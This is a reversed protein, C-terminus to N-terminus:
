IANSFNMGGWVEPTRGRAVIRGLPKIENSAAVTSVKPRSVADYATKYKSLVRFITPTCIVLFSPSSPANFNDRLRLDTLRLAGCNKSREFLCLAEIDTMIGIRIHEGDAQFV